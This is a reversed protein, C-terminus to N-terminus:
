HNVCDGSSMLGSKLGLIGPTDLTLHALTNLLVFELICFTSYKRCEHFFDKWTDHNLLM